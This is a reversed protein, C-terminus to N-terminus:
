LMRALTWSVTQRSLSLRLGVISLRRVPRPARVRPLTSRPACDVVMSRWARSGVFSDRDDARVSWHFRWAWLPSRRFRVLVGSVPRAFPAPPSLLPVLRVCNESSRGSIRARPCASRASGLSVPLPPCHRSRRSCRSPKLGRVHLHTEKSMRESQYSSRRGAHTRREEVCARRGTLGWQRHSFFVELLGNCHRRTLFFFRFLVFFCFLSFHVASFRKAGKSVRFELLLWHNAGVVSLPRGVGAALTRGLRGRASAVVASSVSMKRLLALADWSSLGSPRRGESLCLVITTKSSMGNSTSMSCASLLKWDKTGPFICPIGSTRRGM